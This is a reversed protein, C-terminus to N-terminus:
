RDSTGGLSCDLTTYTRRVLCYRTMEIVLNGACSSLKVMGDLTYNSSSKGGRGRRVVEVSKVNDPPVLLEQLTEAVKDECQAAANGAPAALFLLLTAALLRAARASQIGM